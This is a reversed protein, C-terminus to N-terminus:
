YFNHSWNLENVLTQAGEVFHWRNEKKVRQFEVFPRDIVM